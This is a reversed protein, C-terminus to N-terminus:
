GRVLFIATMVLGTGIVFTRIVKDPLRRAVSAGGYGGVVAGALMVLARPWAVAGAAIFTVVAVGNIVTQLVTKTANTHRIDGLELLGFAALMMIGIGGGFYGGYIAVVFQVVGLVVPNQKRGHLAAEPDDPRRKRLWRTISPSVAFLVTALLLLFPVLRSFVESPLWLLLFAGLAGGALSVATLLPLHSARRLERRYAGVSAVSGPWLAVTSTANARVDPVGALLTLAPFTVFTGGGAVANLTGGIMAAFFLVISYADV